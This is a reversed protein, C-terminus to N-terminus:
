RYAPLPNCGAGIGVDTRGPWGRHITSARHALRLTAGKWTYTDTTLRWRGYITPGILEYNRQVIEPRPKRVCDFGFRSASDGGFNLIVPARVLRGTQFDFVAVNAGSSIWSVYVFLEAGSRANVRGAAVVRPPPSTAVLKAKLVGGSARVVKLTELGSEARSSPRGYLLVLDPRGDGDVDAILTSFCRDASPVYGDRKALGCLDRVGVWTSPSAASASSMSVLVSVGAGCGAAACAVIALSRATPRTKM